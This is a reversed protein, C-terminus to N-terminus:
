HITPAAVAGVAEAEQYQELLAEARKALAAAEPHDAPIAVVLHFAEDNEVLSVVEVGLETNLRDRLETLADRMRSESAKARALARDVKAQHEPHRAHLLANVAPWDADFLSEYVGEELGAMITALPIRAQRPPNLDRMRRAATVRVPDLSEVMGVAQEVTLPIKTWPVLPEGLGPAKLDAPSAVCPEITDNDM